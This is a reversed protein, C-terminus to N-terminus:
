VRTLTKPRYFIRTVRVTKVLLAGFIISYCIWFGVRQVACVGPEPPSVYVFALIFILGIGILLTIMQERGSSKVVPTKWFIIYIITIAMVAILGLIAFIIVVISFADSHRIFSESITVCFDSGVLPNNGWMEAPCM